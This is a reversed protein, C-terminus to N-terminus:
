FWGDLRLRSNATVRTISLSREVGTAAETAKKRRRGVCCDMAGPFPSDKGPYRHRRTPTASSGTIGVYLTWM